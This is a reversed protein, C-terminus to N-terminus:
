IRLRQTHTLLLSDSRPPGTPIPQIFGARPATLAAPPSAVVAVFVMTPPTLINISLSANGDPQDCHPCAHRAHTPSAGHDKACASMAPVGAVQPGAMAAAPMLCMAGAVVQAAFAVIVARGLRAMSPKSLKM